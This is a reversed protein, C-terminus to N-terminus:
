ACAAEDARQKRKREVYGIYSRMFELDVYPRIYTEMFRWNDTLKAWGIRAVMSACQQATYHGKKWMKKALRKAALFIGDRLITADKSFKYGVIDCYYGDTMKWKGDDIEHHGIRKIEWDPKIELGYEKRLYRIIARVAKYLDSKSAGIFLMDDMYRLYHRVWKIRKGRREKYLDQEVWWDFKELYLNAFWPAPYYGVPCAVPGSDVIQEFIELVNEDKIKRRLTDMLKDRDISEFFHRIDLKVFYRCERDTKMWREISKAAYAPGRGIVSGCCYPHMGRRFAPMAVQMVMHHVYHDRECPIWVDRWKGGKHTRNPTWIRKYFPVKHKWRKQRLEETLGKAYPEVRKPDIQHYSAPTYDVDNESFLFPKVCKKNRKKETGNVIAVFCNEETLLDNWIRGLRKM